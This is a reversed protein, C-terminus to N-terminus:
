LCLYAKCLVWAAYRRWISVEFTAIVFLFVVFWGERYVRDILFLFLIYQHFLLPNGVKQLNAVRFIM